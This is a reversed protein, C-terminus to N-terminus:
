PARGVDSILVSCNSFVKEHFLPLQFFCRLLFSSCPKWFLIFLSRDLCSLCPIAFEVYPTRQFTKPRTPSKLPFVPFRTFEVCPFSQPHFLFLYSFGNLLFRPSIMEVASVSPCFGLRLLDIPPAFVSSSSFLLVEPLLCPVRLFLSRLFFIGSSL